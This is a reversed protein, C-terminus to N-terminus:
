PHSVRVTYSQAVTLPPAGLNTADFVEVCYEGKIFIQGSLVTRGINGSSVVNTQGALLGCGGGSWQGWGIGVFVNGPTLATMSVTFEGLNSVSFHQVPDGISLPQLTGSFPPEIINQSPDVPGGGCSMAALAVLLAIAIRQAM